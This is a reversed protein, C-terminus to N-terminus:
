TKPQGVSARRVLSCPQVPVPHRDLLSKGLINSLVSGVKLNADELTKQIRLNHQHPNGLALQNRTWSDEPSM